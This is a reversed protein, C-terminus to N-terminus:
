FVGRGSVTKEPVPMSVDWHEVIKGNSDLRFIDVVANGLEDPTKKSNVHLVVLDGEAIVRKIHPQSQPFKKLFSTILNVFAQGGDAVRPNHQLYENGIYKDVAEQPKHQAFALDYFALVNAKNREITSVHNPASMTSCATLGLLSTLLLTKIKMISKGIKLRGSIAKVM